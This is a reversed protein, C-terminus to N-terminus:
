GRCITHSYRTSPLEDLRTIFNDLHDALGFLFAQKYSNNDEDHYKVCALFLGLFKHMDVPLLLASGYSLIPTLTTTGGAFIESQSYKEHRKGDDSVTFLTVTGRVASRKGTNNWTLSVWEPPTAAPVVSLKAQISVLEPRNAKITMFLNYSAIGIM